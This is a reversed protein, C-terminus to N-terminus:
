KGALFSARTNPEEETESDVDDWTKSEDISDNIYNAIGVVKSHSINTSKVYTIDGLYIINRSLEVLENLNTINFYIISNFFRKYTDSIFTVLNGFLVVKINSVRLNLLTDLASNIMNAPFSSNFVFINAHDIQIKDSINMIKDLNSTAVYILSIDFNRIEGLKTTIQKRRIRYIHDELFLIQNLNPYKFISKTSIASSTNCLYFRSRSPLDYMKSTLSPGSEVLNIFFTKLKIQSAISLGLNEYVVTTNFIVLNSIKERQIFDSLKNLAPRSNPTYSQQLIRRLNRMYKISSLDYETGEIQELNPDLVIYIIKNHYSRKIHEIHKKSQRVCDLDSVIFAINM